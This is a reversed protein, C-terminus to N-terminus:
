QKKRFETEIKGIETTEDASAKFNIKESVKFAQWLVSVFANPAAGAVKTKAALIAGNRLGTQTTEFAKEVDSYAADTKITYFSRGATFSAWTTIDDATTMKSIRDLEDKKSKERDREIFVKELEALQAADLLQISNEHIKDQAKFQVFTKDSTAAETKLKTLDLTVSGGLAGIEYDSYDGVSFTITDTVIKKDDEWAEGKKKMTYAECTITTPVHSEAETIKELYPFAAAFDGIKTFKDKDAMTAKKVNQNGSAVVKYRVVAGADFAAKVKSEVKGEHEHNATRSLATMNNWKGPGGLNDNILHGRIYYSGNGKQRFDIKDYVSHKASTDPGSGNGTVKNTKWIMKAEQSTAFDNTNAGAPVIIENDKPKDKAEGFLPVSVAALKTLLKDIEGAKSTQKEKEDAGPYTEIKKRKETEIDNAVVKAAAIVQSRTMKKGDVTVEESAADGLEKEYNTLFNTYPTPDSKIILVASEGEGEFFVEHHKGDGGTFEKKGKWWNVLSAVVAKGFSVIKEVIVVVKDIVWTLGKDVKERVIELAEKLRESLNLGVQNALFGIVIPIGRALAGELFDAANKTAGQAIQLTGEVFSNVIELMQRLYKIFSQIAKYLAIASNVVAMIGTPDLMSLLKTTVKKIIQDMVFSKVADLVMEWVNSLQEKVKEIMVAMFGREQVDKMFQYAEGAANAVREATDIMKKIKDVKPKGIREELKKWIKEMTIDLVALLWKIIGMVTFDTPIPIGAAQVEGLFWQKLGNFLHTLINDFFQMFGEKIARLLNKLFAVPDRKILDFAQMAKAIINNILDFPFNMVILIAEVVIKVIEVIFAILRGIPAGFQDLIRRFCGIPDMLDSISFSNWLDIFLQVIAAPTMNLRRVAANIKAVTRDIAGSEKLQNYQEEGGEMLSFFGKIVNEMTFPVLENTFPDRGIIVTVLSYGRVTRAWASLRQMLAEKILKLIEIAVRRMFDLVQAVPDAFINYIRRFTEVPNMLAEITVMDWINSFNQVITNYLNGFVAIGEDIYAVVKQFTGTEQMQTRQQIGEEGGLELIANLINTGNREVEQKTVPDEGLIVTLLPYATTNEKIFDVIANLLANKIMELIEKAANEAFSIINNIFRLVINAGDRLVGMPSMDLGFEIGNWFQDFESFLDNVITELGAIKTDIWAAAPDLLEEEQLKQKILNGFPMIDFAADLLNHGNREVEDHSIPDRGLVVRLAKYGPIYMAIQSAKRLLCISIENVDIGLCGALESLSTHSLADDIVSRQVVDEEETKCQISPPGRDQVTQMEDVPAENSILSSNTGEEKSQIIQQASSGQSESNLVATEQEYENAEKKQIGHELSNQQVEEEQEHEEKKQLEKEDTAKQVATTTQLSGGADVTWNSLETKAQVETSADNLQQEDDGEEKRQLKKAAERIEALTKPKTDVAQAEGTGLPGQMIQLPDFFATWESMPHDKTQVQGGLNDEGATNGNVTTVTGGNASEVIAYHSYANRYAIDGPLPQTGPARAAEPKIMREGLKWKPMPVGSKNLAWFVFIGCWSPMADRKGTTTKPVANATTVTTKDVIMGTTERKKKIDQEAVAGEVASGGGGSIIKDAGFTTKFIDILHEYGTRNGDAQPKNADIKGEVTKAKTVANTLQSPVAAASRQISNKRAILKTAVSTTNGAHSRSAGQQITHTLEHALLTGGAETHPSYKGSNFYIDNGHTFAQAHITSSLGEAYSGTHIRVGSFDAGFRTEMFQKTTDPLPSGSGRSSSLTSEFNAQPSSAPPGRGSCQIIDSSHLALEKRNINYGSATEGAADDAFSASSDESRQIMRYLKTQVKDEKECDACKRQVAIAPKQLKTQLEDEEKAQIKEEKDESVKASSPEPMRM